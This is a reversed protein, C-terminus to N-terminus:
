SSISKLATESVSRGRGFAHVCFFTKLDRIKWPNRLSGAFVVIKVPKSKNNTLTCEPSQGTQSRRSKCIDAHTHVLPRVRLIHALACSTFRCSTCVGDWGKQETVDVMDLLGLFTRMGYCGGHTCTWILQIDKGWGVKCCTYTWLVNVDWAMRWGKQEKADVIDLVHRVVTKLGSASAHRFNSLGPHRCCRPESGLM